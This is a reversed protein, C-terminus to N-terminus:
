LFQKYIMPLKDNIHNCQSCKFDKIKKVIVDSNDYISACIPCLDSEGLGIDGNIKIHPTCIKNANRLTVIIDKLTANPVQKSIARINFCKSAKAFCKDNFNQLARGQPYLTEVCDDCLLFGDERFIRKTIDLRKPYYRVDASVQFLFSSKPFLSVIRKAEEQNELCWFGNTTVTTHAIINENKYFRALTEMFEVFKSHETPEGGTIIIATNEVLDEKKIFNLVDIFTNLDMEKGKSTANNMCHTCKMSCKETIKILM